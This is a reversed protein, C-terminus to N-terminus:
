DYSRSRRRAHRRPSPSRNRRPSNSRKRYSSAYSDRYSRVGERYSERRGEERFHRGGGYSRSSSGFPGMYQGPTPSHARRTLSFDVRIKQGDLETGTLRDRAATAHEISTFYIFGFGRSRGSPRDYVLEVKEVDGYEGFVDKLDKETTYVSLNFAGLCNSPKPNDRQSNGGGYGRRPSRRDRPSRSVRRPSRERDRHRGRSPSRSPSRSISRSHSRSRDM